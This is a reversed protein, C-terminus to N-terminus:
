SDTINEICSKLIQRVRSITKRVAAHSKNSKAAYDKLSLEGSYTAAVLDRHEVPLKALCHRLRRWQAESEDFQDIVEEAILDLAQESLNIMPRRKRARFYILCRYRVVQAAWARFNTGPRYNGQNKVLYLNADQLVDHVDSAPV